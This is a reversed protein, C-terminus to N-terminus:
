TVKLMSASLILTCRNFRESLRRVARERVEPSYHKNRNM